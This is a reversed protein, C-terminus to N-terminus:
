GYPYNKVLLNQPGQTAFIDKSPYCRKNQIVKKHTPEFGAEAVI